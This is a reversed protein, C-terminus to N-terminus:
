GDDLLGQQADRHDDDSLRSRGRQVGFEVGEHRDRGTAARGDDAPFVRVQVRRYNQRRLCYFHREFRAHPLEKRERVACRPQSKDLRGHHHQRQQRMQARCVLQEGGRLRVARQM